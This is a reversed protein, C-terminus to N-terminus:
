HLLGLGRAASHHMSRELRGHRRTRRTRLSV